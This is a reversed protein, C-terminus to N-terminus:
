KKPPPAGGMMQAPSMKLDKPWENVWKRQMDPPTYIDPNYSLARLDPSINEALTYKPTPFVIEKPIVGGFMEKVMWQPNPKANNATDPLAAQRIWIADKTVNVVQHDFGFAFMGKYHTRVEAIAEGLLELDYSFHTTMGLRPQILKNLYGVGYGASHASDITFAGIVEPAGQKLSWLAPNDVVMETIFVDAGKAYKATLEDPKGDGTWVFSLGNWDLRYGSAGDMTHNRRWHTVKVGNKDYCVGGDDKYDFETVETEYGDGVPISSFSQIHWASMKVMADVMAKTGLAPTRGSPGIIRMPKWRMLFPGFSYIYPLDAFHDMHLHTIFIDQIEPVPVQNAIINRMCGSGFDFFYRGTQGCEVMICTGQQSQRPPFPNSGMFTIRMEDPGLEESQPFYNNRNRVSPTPKYYPPMSIGTGPPANYPNKPTCNADAAEASLPSAASVVGAAAVVGLSKIIDRREM